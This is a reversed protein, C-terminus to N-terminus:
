GDLAFTLLFEITGSDQVTGLDLPVTLTFTAEPFELTQLIRGHFQDDRRSQDSTITTM